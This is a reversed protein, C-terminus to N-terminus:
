AKAEGIQSLVEKRAWEAPDVGSDTGNKGSQEFSCVSRWLLLRPTLKEWAAPACTVPTLLTMSARWLMETFMIILRQQVEQTALTMDVRERLTLSRHPASPVPSTAEEAVTAILTTPNFLLGVEVKELCQVALELLEPLDKLPPGNLSSLRLIVQSAHPFNRASAAISFEPLYETTLRVCFFKCCTKDDLLLILCKCIIKRWEGNTGAEIKNHDVIVIINELIKIWEVGEATINGQLLQTEIWPLLASKLIL